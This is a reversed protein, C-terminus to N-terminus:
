GLGPRLSSSLSSLLLVVMVVVVEELLAEVGVEVKRMGEEVSRTAEKPMAQHAAPQWGVTWGCM